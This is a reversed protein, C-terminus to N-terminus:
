PKNLTIVTFLSFNHNDYFKYQTTKGGTNVHEWFMIVNGASHKCLAQVTYGLSVHKKRKIYHKIINCM